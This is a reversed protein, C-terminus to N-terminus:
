RCQTMQSLPLVTVNYCHETHVQVVLLSISLDWVPRRLNIVLDESSHCSKTCIKFYSNKKHGDGKTLMGELQCSCNLLEKGYRGSMWYPLQSLWVCCRLFHFCLLIHKSLYKYQYAFLQCLVCSCSFNLEMIWPWSNGVCVPAESNHYCFLSYMITFITLLIRCREIMDHLKYAVLIAWGLIFIVQSITGCDWNSMSKM